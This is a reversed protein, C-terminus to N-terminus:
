TPQADPKTCRRGHVAKVQEVFIRVAPVGYVPGETVGCRHCAYFATPQDTSGNGALYGSKIHLEAAVWLVPYTRSTM